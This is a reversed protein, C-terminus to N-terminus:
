RLSSCAAVSNCVGGGQICPGSMASSVESAPLVASRCGSTGVPPSSSIVSAGGTANSSPNSAQSRSLSAGRADTRAKHRNYDKVAILLQQLAQLGPQLLFSLLCLAKDSHVAALSAIAGTLHVAVPFSVPIRRPSESPSSHSYASSAHSKSDARDAACM